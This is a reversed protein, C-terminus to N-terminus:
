EWVGDNDAFDHRPNFHIMACSDVFYDISHDPLNILYDKADIIRSNVRYDKLVNSNINFKDIATVQSNMDAILSPLASNGVGLEVLFKGSNDNFHKLVSEIFGWKIYGDKGVNPFGRDDYFNKDHLISDETLIM